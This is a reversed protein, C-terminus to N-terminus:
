SYSDELKVECEREGVFDKKTCKEENLVGLSDIYKSGAPVWNSDYQGMQSLM